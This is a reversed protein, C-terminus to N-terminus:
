AFSFEALVRRMSLADLEFRGGQPVVYADHRGLATVRHEAAFTPLGMSNGVHVGATVPIFITAKGQSKEPEAIRYGRGSAITAFIDLFNIAFISDFFVQCYAQPVRNRELWRYVIVLDEVKVTFCLVGRGPATRAERRQQRAAMYTLAEFKSSRVEIAADAQQAIPETEAQPRESLDEAVGARAPFLLLDPRKGLLRTEELGALYRDKFGPQAAATREASGYRTVTWEPFAARLASALM